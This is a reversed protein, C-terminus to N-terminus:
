RMSSVFPDPGQWGAIHCWADITELVRLLAEHIHRKVVPPDIGLSSAIDSASVGGLEGLVFSVRQAVPLGAVTSAIAVRLRLDQPRADGDRSTTPAPATQTEGAAGARPLLRTVERACQRALWSSFPARGRFSPLLEWAAAFTAQLAQEAAGPDQLSHLALAYIHSHHREVLAQFARTDGRRASELLAAESASKSVQGLLRIRKANAGM